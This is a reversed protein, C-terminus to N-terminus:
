SGLDELLSAVDQVSEVRIGQNLAAKDTSRLMSVPIGTLMGPETEGDQFVAIEGQYERLIYGSGAETSKANDSAVPATVTVPSVETYALNEPADADLSYSAGPNSRNLVLRTLPVALLMLVLIGGAAYLLPKKM